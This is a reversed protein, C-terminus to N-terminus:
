VGGYPLQEPVVDPAILALRQGILVSAIGSWQGTAAWKMVGAGSLRERDEGVALQVFVAVTFAQEPPPAMGFADPTSSDLKQMGEPSSVDLCTFGIGLGKLVVQDLGSGEETLLVRFAEPLLDRDDISVDGVVARLRGQLPSSDNLLFELVGSLLGKLEGLERIVVLDAEPNILDDLKQLFIM